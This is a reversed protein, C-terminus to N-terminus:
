LRRDRGAARRHALRLPVARDRRRQRERRGRTGCRRRRSRRRAIRRALVHLGEAEIGDDNTALVRVRRVYGRVGHGPRLAAPPKPLARRPYHGGRAGAGGGTGRRARRTRRPRRPREGTRRCRGRASAWPAPPERQPEPAPARRERAWPPSLRRACSPGCAGTAVSRREWRPPSRRGPERRRVSGAPRRARRGEGELEAGPRRASQATTLPEAASPEPPRSPTAHARVM